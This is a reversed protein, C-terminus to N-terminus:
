RNHHIYAFVFFAGTHEHDGKHRSRMSRIGWAGHGHQAHRRWLASWLGGEQTSGALWTELGFVAATVEELLDRQMFWVSMGDEVGYSDGWSSGDILRDVSACVLSRAL